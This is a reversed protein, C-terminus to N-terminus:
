RPANRVAERAAGFTGFEEQNYVFKVKGSKDVKIKILGSSVEPYKSAYYETIKQEAEKPSYTSIETGGLDYKVAVGDDFANGTSFLNGIGEGVMYTGAAAVPATAGGTPLAAFIGAIALALGGVTLGIGSWLNSGKHDELEEVNVGTLERVLDPNQDAIRNFADKTEEDFSDFDIGMLRGWAKIEEPSSGQQRMNALELVASQTFQKAREEQEYQLNASDVMQQGYTLDTSRLAATLENMLSKRTDMAARQFEQNQAELQNVAQGAQQQAQFAGLAALGSSGLGRAQAQNQVSRQAMYAQEALQGRNQNM